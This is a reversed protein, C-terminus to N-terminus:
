ARFKLDRPILVLLRSVEDFSPYKKGCYPCGYTKPKSPKGGRRELRDRLEDVLDRTSIESLVERRELIDTVYDLDRTNLEDVWDRAELTSDGDVHATAVWASLSLVLPVLTAFPVRM